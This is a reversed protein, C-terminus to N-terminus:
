DKCKKIEIDILKCARLNAEVSVPMARRLQAYFRRRNEIFEDMDKVNKDILCPANSAYIGTELQALNVWEGNHILAKFYVNM